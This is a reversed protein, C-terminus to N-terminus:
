TKLRRARMARTRGCRQPRTARVTALTVAARGDCEFVRVTHPSLDRRRALWYGDLATDWNM